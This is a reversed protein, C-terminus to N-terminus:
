WPKAGITNRIVPYCRNYIRIVRKCRYYTRSDGIANFSRTVISRSVSQLAMTLSPPRAKDDRKKDAFRNSNALNANNGRLPAAVLRRAPENRFATSNWFRWANGRAESWGRGSLLDLLGFRREAASSRTHQHLHGGWSKWDRAAGFKKVFGIGGRSEAIKNWSSDTEFIRLTHQCLHLQTCVVFRFLCFQFSIGVVFHVASVSERHSRM